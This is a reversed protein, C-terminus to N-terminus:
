KIAISGVCLGEEEGEFGPRNEEGPKGM